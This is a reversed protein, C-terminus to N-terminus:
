RNGSNTGWYISLIGQCKEEIVLSEILPIFSCEMFYVRVEMSNCNRTTALDIFQQALSHVGAERLDDVICDDTIDDPMELM